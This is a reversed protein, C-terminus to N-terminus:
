AAVHRGDGALAATLEDTLYQLEDRDFYITPVDLETGDIAIYWGKENAGLVWQAETDKTVLIEM